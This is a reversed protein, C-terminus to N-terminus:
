QLRFSVLERSPASGLVFVGGPASNWAVYNLRQVRGETPEDPGSVHPVVFYSVTLGNVDYVAHAVRRGDVVCVQGGILRAGAPAEPIAIPMGLRSEFWRGLEIPDASQFVGERQSPGHHDTHDEALDAALASGVGGRPGLTWVIALVAVAAAAALGFAFTGRGPGSWPAVRAPADAEVVPDAEAGEVRARVRERLQAPATEGACLSTIRERVRREGSLRSACTPCVAAHAEVASARSADLEGDLFSDVNERLERCTMEHDSM